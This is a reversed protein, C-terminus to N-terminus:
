ETVGDTLNSVRQRLSKIEDIAAQCTALTIVDGYVDSLKDIIDANEKPRAFPFLPRIHGAQGLRM